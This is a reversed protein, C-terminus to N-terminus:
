VHNIAKNIEFVKEEGRNRDKTNPGAGGSYGCCHVGEFETPAPARVPASMQPASAKIDDKRGQEKLESSHISKVTFFKSHNELM